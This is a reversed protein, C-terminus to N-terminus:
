QTRGTDRKWSGVTRTEQPEMKTRNAAGCGVLASDWDVEGEGEGRRGILALPQSITRVFQPKLGRSKGAIITWPGSWRWLMQDATKGSSDSAILASSSYEMRIYYLIFTRLSTM